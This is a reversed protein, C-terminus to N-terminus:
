MLRQQLYEVSMQLLENQLYPNLGLFEGLVHIIGEIRELRENNPETRNYYDIITNVEQVYEKAKRRKDPTDAKKQAFDARVSLNAIAQEITM